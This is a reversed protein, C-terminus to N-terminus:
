TKARGPVGTSSTRGRWGSRDSRSSPRTWGSMSCAWPPVEDPGDGVAGILQRGLGPHRDADDPLRGGRELAADRRVRREPPLRLGPARLWAPRRRRQFLEGLARRPGLVQVRGPQHGEDHGVGPARVRPLDRRGHPRGARRHERRDLLGSGRGPLGLRVRPVGQRGRRLRLARPRRRGSRRRRPAGGLGPARAGRRHGAPAPGPVDHRGGQHHRRLVGADVAVDPHGAADVVALRLHGAPRRGGPGTLRQGDASVVGTLGDPVTLTEHTGPVIPGDAAFRLMTPSLSSWSGALPPSFSPMPSDTALPTTLTVTLATDPAVDTAGDPPSTSVVALAVHRAHQAPASAAAASPTAAGGGRGFLFSAGAAGAVLVVAIGAVLWRVSGGARRKNHAPVQAM